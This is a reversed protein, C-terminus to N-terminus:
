NWYFCIEETDIGFLKLLNAINAKILNASLNAEAYITNTVKKAVKLDSDKDSFFKRNRNSIFDPNNPLNEIKNNDINNLHEIFQTYIDQWSKVNFRQGQLVFAFPSKGTFDEDFSHAGADGANIQEQNTTEITSKVTTKNIPRNVTKQLDNENAILIKEELFSIIVDNDPKLGCVMSVSEALLNILDEDRDEVLRKWAQPLIQEVTKKNSKNKFDEKAKTDTEKSITKQYDLYRSLRFSCEDDDRELLYLTFFNRDKYSGEEKPLYFRWEKGDTLIAMRVGIEFCYEMLQRVSNDNQKELDKKAEIFVIPKEFTDCLAYDVRGSGTSYEPCVIKTDWCNWSLATLIRIIIGQKVAEENPFRELKIGIKIEHIHEKLDM